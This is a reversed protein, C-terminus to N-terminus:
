ATERREGVEHLRPCLFRMWAEVGHEVYRTLAHRGDRATNPDRLLREAVRTVDCPEDARAKWWHPVWDIADSAVVPVGEAIADASVVNFSETFSVQFVLDLTRLLQRFDTWPLWGTKILKFGPVRETLEELARLGAGENRGTSLHLEVPVCLKASLEVAAAAGSLHNKLPRNAGFLGLRLARQGDWTRGPRPFVENMAYLNPLWSVHVGWAATAWDSFKKANGAVFINHSMLQLDAADRLLRIAHPDASLFGVNSHCVVCFAIEPFEGALMALDCTAMWPAQLIVHTPAVEHHERCHTHTQRLREALDRASEVPWVEAWIGHARLTKATAAASVGLGIHSVGKGAWSRHVLAVRATKPHPHLHHPRYKVISSADTNM